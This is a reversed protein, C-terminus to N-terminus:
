QIKINQYSSFNLGTGFTPVFGHCSSWASRHIILGYCLGTYIHLHTHENSLSDYSYSYSYTRLVQKILAWNNTLALQAKYSAAARLDVTSRPQRPVQNIPSTRGKSLVAHNSSSAPQVVQGQVTCYKNSRFITSIRFSLVLDFANIYAFFPNSIGSWFSFPHLM